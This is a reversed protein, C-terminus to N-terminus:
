CFIVTGQQTAFLTSFYTIGWGKSLNWEKVLWSVWVCSPLVCKLSQKNPPPLKLFLPINLRSGWHNTWIIWWRWSCCWWSWPIWWGHGWAYRWADWWCGPIAQHHNPQVGEGAGEPPAWVRGEWCDSFHLFILLVYLKFIGIYKV